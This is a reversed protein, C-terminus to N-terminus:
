TSRRRWLGLAMMLIGIFIFIFSIPLLGFPEQLVGNENVDSGILYFLIQLAVGLFLFCSGLQALSLTKM